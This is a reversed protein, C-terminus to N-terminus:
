PVVVRGLIDLVEQPASDLKEVASYVYIADIVESGETTLWISERRLEQGTQSDIWIRRSAGTFVQSEGPNRMPTDLPETLFIVMCPQGNYLTEQHTVPIGRQYASDLDVTVDDLTFRYPASNNYGSNGFTFNVAYNGVAVAQQIISGNIDRDTTVTRTVYGDAGIEFWQERTYSTPPYALTGPIQRRTGETLMHIWAPGTQFPANFKRVLSEVKLLFPDSFALTPIVYANPIATLTSMPVLTNPLAIPSSQPTWHIEWTGKIRYYISALRIEFPETPLAKFSLGTTINQNAIPAGGSAGSAQEAYLRLGTMNQAPDFEFSLETMSVLRAKVLHLVFGDAQLAEDLLWTQGVKPNQGLDFIFSPSKGQEDPYGLMVPIENSALPTDNVLRFTLQEAGKFPVTRYIRTKGMDMTGPTQDSLPYIKGHQDTLAINWPGNLMLNPRDYHISIQLITEASTQAVQELALSVGDVTESQVPINDSPPSPIIEGARLPRLRLPLNFTEGGFNEVLLTLQSPTGKLPPFVYHVQVEGNPPGSSSGMQFKVKEGDSLIVYAQAFDREVSYGNVNLEVWFRNADSVANNVSLTIGNFKQEVPAQLVMVAQTSSTFGFGPIYGGLTSIAYVVGTILLLALVALIIALVPHARLSNRVRVRFPSRVEEFHHRWELDLRAAFNPSPRPATYYDNIASELEPPLTWNIDDM